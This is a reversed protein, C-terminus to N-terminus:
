KREMLHSIRAQYALEEEFRVSLTDCPQVSIFDRPNTGTHKWQKLWGRKRCMVQANAKWVSGRDAIFMYKTDDFLEGRKELGIYKSITMPYVNHRGIGGSHLGHENRLNTHVVNKDFWFSM